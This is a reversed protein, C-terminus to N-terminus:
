GSHVAGAGIVNRKLGFDKLQHALFFSGIYDIPVKGEGVEVQYALSQELTPARGSTVQSTPESSLCRQVRYRREVVEVGLCLPSKFM